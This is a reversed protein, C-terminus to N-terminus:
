EVILKFAEAVASTIKVGDGFNADTETKTIRAYYVKCVPWDETVDPDLYVAIDGTSHEIVVVDGGTMTGTWRVTNEPISKKSTIIEVQIEDLDDTDIALGTDEYTLTFLLEISDVGRIYSNM